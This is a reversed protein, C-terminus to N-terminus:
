CLWSDLIEIDTEDMELEDIIQERTKNKQKKIQILKILKSLRGEEKGKKWGEERGEEWGEERGEEREELLVEESLKFM